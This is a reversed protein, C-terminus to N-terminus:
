EIMLELDSCLPIFLISADPDRIDNIAYYNTTSINYLVESSSLDM